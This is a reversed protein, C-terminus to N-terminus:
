AEGAAALASAPQRAAVAVIALCVRRLWSALRAALTPNSAVSHAGGERDLLALLRSVAAGLAEDRQACVRADSAWETALATLELIRSERLSKEVAQLATYARAEDDGGRGVRELLDEPLTSLDSLLRKASASVEEASRAAIGDPAGAASVLTVAVLHTPGARGAAASAGCGM